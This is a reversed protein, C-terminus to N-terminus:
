IVEWLYEINGILENDGSVLAKLRTKFACEMAEDSGCNFAMVTDYYMQSKEEDTFEHMSADRVTQLINIVDCTNDEAIKHEVYNTVLALLDIFNKKM